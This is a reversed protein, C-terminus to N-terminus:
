ISYWHKRFTIIDTQQMLISYIYVSLTLMLFLYIRGPTNKNTKKM